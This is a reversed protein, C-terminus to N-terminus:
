TDTNTTPSDIQALWRDLAECEAVERGPLWRLDEDGHGSWQVLYQKGHGRKREDIIKEIYFEEHGDATIIPGPRALEREPFLEANNEIYPEVESTHFVPFVEPQTTMDLTVTSCEKHVATITYPGDFRPMFKACRGEKSRLYMTRRHETTLKVRQGVQYDPDPRRDKNANAAQVLKAALLNDKADLTDNALQNIIDAAAVDEAEVGTDPTTLPPILRPSRGTKLQFPSYGTSKNITNMIHFRVRPLARVWGKQNRAVHFRLCQNLTKNTRESCGDTEPHFATSLKLKVGTLKHLAKWFKSVFLKDRDSIIELPLGNECYWTDFFVLAFEEATANTRTPALQVDTGLRDTFTAICNYGAEEPLPGVFDIGVSDFQNDPVPLPHLPGSVKSTRSKHRQCDACAPIYASELDKRMNPWYYADRLSGYSKEFGFHSLSDHALRFLRERIHGVRPIMLRSGIYWLGDKNVIGPISETVSTFKSCWPDQTYGARISDLLEIDVAVSMITCIPDAIPDRIRTVALCHAAMLPTADTPCALSTITDCDDDCPPTSHLDAESSDDFDTRSLADAVTNAEGKVYVIKTDFQSMFEMWRAQRRSLDRQSHFNELTRHDTYVHIPSGILDARWQRLARIIALLEKEHIPYNLEAGKFTRSDFAVPRAMEWTEGFSLVAGSRKDSADATVFIKNNGM